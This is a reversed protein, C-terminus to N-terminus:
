RRSEQLKKVARAVLRRPVFRQAQVLLKNRAGPIAVRWGAMLARYGFEAVERADAVNADFLKARSVQAVDAFETETPGPCLCSVVVGSKALEEALAQSFSLVFAKTAYYVSMGPGPFFAATSAVNLVFGSRRRLMPAIFLKTLHMLSTINVQVMATEREIPTESFEGGLGFGANNVLVDVDIRADRVAVFIREPAEPDGLDDVIVTATIGHKGELTGALAELADRRRAVLVVDYDHGAFVKALEAGIGASAGTILATPRTNSDRAM